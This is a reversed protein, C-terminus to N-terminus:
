FNTVTVKNHGNFVAKYPLLGYNSPGKYVTGNLINFMSGCSACSIILGGPDVTLLDTTLDWDYPCARDYALFTVADLRYLIIGAIGGTVYVYTSPNQLIVFGPDTLYITFNVPVYPLIEHRYPRCSQLWLILGLAVIIIYKKM